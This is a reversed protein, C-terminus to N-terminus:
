GSSPSQQTTKPLYVNVQTCFLNFMEDTTTHDDWGSAFVFSIQTTGDTSEFYRVVRSKEYNVKEFKGSNDTIFFVLKEGERIATDNVVTVGARQKESQSPSSIFYLPVKGGDNVGYDIQARPAIGFLSAIFVFFAMIKAFLGTVLLVVGEFNIKQPTYRYQIM